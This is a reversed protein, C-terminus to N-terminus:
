FGEPLQFEFDELDEDLVDHGLLQDGFSRGWAEDEEDDSRSLIMLELDREIDAATRYAQEQSTSTVLTANTSTSSCHSMPGRFRPPVTGASTSRQHISSATAPRRAAVSFPPPKTVNSLPMRTASPTRGMRGQAYGITSKSATVAIAQRATNCEALPKTTKKSAILGTPVRSKASVVPAARSPKSVSSLAAAASRARITSLGSKMRKPAANPVPKLAEKPEEIGLYRRVEADEEAMQAEFVKDFEEDRQKRSRQFEEEFERQKRTRGDDEIPNHCAEWIGRRMAMDDIKPITWDKPLYDDMDDELPIEKPPMYEIEPVDDESEHEAAPQHVKVKPRRLRPSVKQTKGASSLPAPTQFARSKANTTKMGLPARTRPGAPTVFANADLKAGKQSTFLLNENGKSNTKLVSKGAKNVANEDNLPVKFPTKPAKNGPTKANFGKLGANLSKGAGGAQLHRVANEQDNAALTAM